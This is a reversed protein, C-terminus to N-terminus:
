HVVLASASSKPLALTASGNVVRAGGSTGIVSALEAGDRLGIAKAPVSVKKERTDRNFAVIVTEAGDQRAFVYTDDDYFLDILRGQRM